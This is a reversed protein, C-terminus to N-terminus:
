CRGGVFRKGGTGNLVGQALCGLCREGHGVQEVGLAVGVLCIMVILLMHCCQRALRSISSAFSHGSCDSALRLGPMHGCLPRCRLVRSAWKDWPSDVM